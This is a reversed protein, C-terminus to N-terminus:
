AQSRQREWRRKVAESIRARGEPTMNRPQKAVLRPRYVPKDIDVISRDDVLIARAAELRGIETDLQHIISEITM